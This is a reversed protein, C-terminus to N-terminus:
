FELGASLYIRLFEKNGELQTFPESILITKRDSNLYAYCISGLIFGKPWSDFRHTIKLIGEIGNGLESSNRNLHIDGRLNNRIDYGFQIGFLRQGKNEFGPVKRESFEFFVKDNPFYVSQYLFFSSYGGLVRPEALPAAFGNSSKDLRANQDKSSFLGSLSWHTLGFSAHLSAYALTANTDQIVETWPATRAKRLGTVRIISLDFQFGEYFKISRLEIGSYNFQGFEYATPIRSPDNSHNPERYIYHFFQLSEWFLHDSSRMAGGVVEKRDHNWASPKLSEERHKFSLTHLAFSFGSTDVIHFQGYNAMGNFLFGYSDLRQWGRGGEIALKFRSLQTEYSSIAEGDWVSTIEREFKRSEVAQLRPGLIFSFAHNSQEYRFGAIANAGVLGSYKRGEDNESGGRQSFFQGGSFVRHNSHFGTNGDSSFANSKWRTQTAVKVRGWDKTAKLDDMQYDSYSESLLSNSFSSMLVCFLGIM